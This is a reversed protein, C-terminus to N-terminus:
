ISGDEGGSYMWKGDSQFGLSTINKSVGEYNVVPNPNSSVIDYMRIHQFGAASLMHRNPTIELANVSDSHQVIRQCVGNHASWFRITHDYGGTALIVDNGDEEINVMASM